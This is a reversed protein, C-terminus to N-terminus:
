RGRERMDEHVSDWLETFPINNKPDVKEEIINVPELQIPLEPLVKIAKSYDPDKPTIIGPVSIGVEQAEKENVIIAPPTPEGSLGFGVLVDRRDVVLFSDQFSEEGIPHVSRKRESM